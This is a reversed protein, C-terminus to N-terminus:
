ILNVISGEAIVGMGSHNFNRGFWIKPVGDRDKLRRYQALAQNPRIDLTATDQNIGPVECRDCLKQGVFTVGSIRLLDIKDEQHADLGSIVINPRFRDMGVPKGVIKDNLGSLSAESIVLFPFADAFSLESDGTKAKRKEADAIQVLRYKGPRERSLYTTFWDSAEPSVEVASYQGSWVQVRLINKSASSKPVALTGMEPAEIILNDADRTAYPRVLCMSRLGVGLPGSNRQAVFMGQENVVLWRRDAEFGRATVLGVILREGACGKIPYQYLASIQVQAM